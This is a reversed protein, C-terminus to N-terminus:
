TGSPHMAPSLLNARATLFMAFFSVTWSSSVDSIASKRSALSLGFPTATTRFASCRHMAIRPTCAGPTRVVVDAIRPTKLSWVRVALASNMDTMLLHALDSLERRLLIYPRSWSTTGRDRGLDEM